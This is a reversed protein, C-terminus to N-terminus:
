EDERVRKARAKKKAALRRKRLLDKLRGSASQRTPVRPRRKRTKAAIAAALRTLAEVRNRERSRRETAQARLGSPVHRVRVGTEVKNRHQGGPGSARYFEFVCDRALKELAEQKM